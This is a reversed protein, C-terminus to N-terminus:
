VPGMKKQRDRVRGKRMKCYIERQYSFERVGSLGWKVGVGESERPWKLDLKKNGREKTKGEM